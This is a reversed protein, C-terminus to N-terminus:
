KQCPVKEIYDHSLVQTAFPRPFPLANGPEARRQANSFRCRNMERHHARLPMDVSETQTGSVM